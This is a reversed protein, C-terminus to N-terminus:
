TTNEANQGIAGLGLPRTRHMLLPFSKGTREPHQAEIMSDDEPRYQLGRDDDYRSLKACHHAAVPTPLLCGQQRM